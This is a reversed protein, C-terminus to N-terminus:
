LKFGNIDYPLEDVWEYTTKFLHMPFQLENNSTNNQLSDSQQSSTMESDDTLDIVDDPDHPSRAQEFTSPCPSEIAVEEETHSEAPKDLLLIAEYHNNAVNSPDYTFKLHAGKATVDTTHEVIQKNGKPGKQYITLNLKLARAIAAVILDLMNDCYMGFKFYRKADQLVHGTHFLKYYNVISDLHVLITSEMSDSTVVEDHYMYLVMEVANPSVFGMAGLQLLKVNFSPCMFPYNIGLCTLAVFLLPLRNCM